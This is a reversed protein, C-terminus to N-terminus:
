AGQIAKRIPGNNMTDESIINVIVDRGARSAMNRATAEDTVFNWIKVGDSGGEGPAKSDSAPTVSEGTHLKYDGTYPVYDTGEKFNKSAAIAGVAAAAFALGVALGAYPIHAHASIYKATATWVAVGVEWAAKMGLWAKEVVWMAKKQLFAWRDLWVQKTAVSASVALKSKAFLKQITLTTQETQLMKAVYKAMTNAWQRIVANGIDKFLGKMIDKFNAGRRAMADFANAWASEMTAASQQAETMEWNAGTGVGRLMERRKDVAEMVFVDNRRKAEAYFGDLLAMEKNFAEETMIHRSALQGEYSKAYEEKERKLRERLEREENRATIAAADKRIGELAAMLRVEALEKLLSVENVTGKASNVAIEFEHHAQLTRRAITDKTSVIEIQRELSAINKFYGEELSFLGKVKEYVGSVSGKIQDWYSQMEKEKEVLQIYVEGLAKEEDSTRTKKGALAEYYERLQNVKIGAQGLNEIVTGLGAEYRLMAMRSETWANVVSTGMGEMMSKIRGIVEVQSELAREELRLNQIRKLIEKRRQLDPGSWGPPAVSALPSTDIGGRGRPVVLPVILERRLAALAGRLRSLQDEKEDLARGAGIPVLNDMNKRITALPVGLDTAAKILAETVSLVRLEADVSGDMANSVKDYQKQLNQLAELKSVLSEIHRKDAETAARSKAIYTAIGGVVLPLVVLAGGLTLWLTKMSIDLATMAIVLNSITLTLSGFALNIAGITGIAVTAGIIWAGWVKSFREFGEMGEDLWENLSMFLGRLVDFAGSEAMFINRLRFWKDRMMSMLGTWTRAMKKAAGRFKSEPDTWADMMIKRTEAITYHVGDRFGMMATTGSERFLDAAGAGASLMRQVQISTEEFTHRTVAALDSILPMWKIVDDAGGELVASLNTAAGMIKEYEHPVAAAHKAMAQFLRSGEAQSKLVTSLRMAFQESTDAAKIFTRATLGIAATIAAGFLTASMAVRNLAHENRKLKQSWTETSAIVPTIQRRLAAMRQNVQDMARADGRLSFKLIDLQAIQKKVSATTTIGLSKFQAERKSLAKAASSSIAADSRKFAGRVKDLDRKLSKLDIIVRAAIAGADFAM